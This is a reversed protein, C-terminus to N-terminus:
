QTITNNHKLKHNHATNFILWSLPMLVATILLLIIIVIARKKRIAPLMPSENIKAAFTARLLANNTPPIFANTWDYTIAKIEKTPHGFRWDVVTQKLALDFVGEPELSRSVGTVRGIGHYSRLLGGYEEPISESFDFVLPINWEFFNTSQSVKYQFKLVGDPLGSKKSQGTEIGLGKEFERVSREYLSESTFLQVLRPLGLSDDFTETKDSYGFADPAHGIMPFAVPLPIVRGSRKLYPGSCLALWAINVAPNGLPHGGPTSRINITLNSKVLELPPYRNKNTHSGSPGVTIQINDCMNTGDFYWKERGNQAFNGEIQWANTGVNCIFYITHWQNSWGKPGPQSSNPKVGAEEIVQIEGSMRVYTEASTAMTFASISLLLLACLHCAIRQSGSGTRLVLYLRVFHLLKLAATLILVSAICGTILRSLLWKSREVGERDESVTTLSNM